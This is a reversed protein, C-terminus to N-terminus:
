KVRAFFYKVTPSSFMIKYTKLMLAMNTLSLIKGRRRINCKIKCLVSITKDTFNTTVFTLIIFAMLQQFKM